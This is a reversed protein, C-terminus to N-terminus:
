DGNEHHCGAAIWEDLLADSEAFMDDDEPDFIAVRTRWYSVSRRESHPVRTPRLPATEPIKESMLVHYWM